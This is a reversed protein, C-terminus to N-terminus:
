RATYMTGLWSVLSRLLYTGLAGGSATQVQWFTLRGTGYPLTQVTARWRFGPGGDPMMFCGALVDADPIEELAWAPLVEACAGDAICPAGLGAFIPHARLYHFVGMFNACPARAMLPLDLIPGLWQAAAPDIGLRDRICM